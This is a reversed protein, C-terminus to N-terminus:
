AGALLSGSLRAVDLEGVLVQVGDAAEELEEVRALVERALDRALPRELVVGRDRGDVVRADLQELVCLDVRQRLFPADGRQLRQGGVLDVADVRRDLALDFVRAVDIGVGRGVVGGDAGGHGVEPRGPRM